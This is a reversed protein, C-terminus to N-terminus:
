FRAGSPLSLGFVYIYVVYIIATLLVSYIVRGKVTSKSGKAFLTTLGYTVFPTTILYGILSAAFVYVALVVMAVLAKIWGQKSLFPKEDELKEKCGELFVGAGCVVFGFAAIMPLAKPGPYSLTFPVSLQNTMVFVIIGLIVLVAGAVQDRKLKM